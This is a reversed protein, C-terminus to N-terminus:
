DAAILLTGPQCLTKLFLHPLRDEAAARRHFAGSNGKFAKKTGTKQPLHKLETIQNQKSQVKGCYSLPPRQLVVSFKHNYRLLGLVADNQIM